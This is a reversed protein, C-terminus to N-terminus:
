ILNIPLLLGALSSCKMRKSCLFYRLVTTQFAFLFLIASFLLYDSISNDDYDGDDDNDYNNNNNNNNNDGNFFVFFLPPTKTKM